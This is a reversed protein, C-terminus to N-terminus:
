NTPEVILDKPIPKYFNTCKDLITQNQFINNINLKSKHKLFYM